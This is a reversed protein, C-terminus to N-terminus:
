DESKEGDDEGEGKVNEEDEAKQSETGESETTENQTTESGPTENNTKESELAELENKKRQKIEHEMTKRESAERHKIERVQVRREMEDREKAERAKKESEEEESKKVGVEKANPASLKESTQQNITLLAKRIGASTTATEPVHEFEYPDYFENKSPFPENLQVGPFDKSYRELRAAFQKLPWARGEISWATEFMRKWRRHNAVVYLGCRARSFLVNLRRFDLFGPNDTVVPDMIVIDYELGQIKDVTEIVINAAQPYRDSMKTMAYRLRKAELRYPTLVAIIASHPADCFGANVLGELINTVAVIYESCFKPLCRKSKQETAGPVNFFVVSHPADYIETNHKVIAQALPRNEVKTVEDSGLRGQYRTYNYINAIEPVARYQTDFFGAPFKQNQLRTQLSLQMQDKLPSKGDLNGSPPQMQFPDGVMIKGIARPYFGLLPWWQYEPVRAAEDVIILECAKYSQTVMDDAVGAVTACVAAAGEIVTKMFSHISAIFSEVDKDRYIEGKSYRDYSSQLFSGKSSLLQKMRMGVSLSINQVREDDVGEYRGCAYTRYHDFTASGTEQSGENQQLSHAPKKAAQALVKRKADEADKLFINTETKISHLRVIYSDGRLTPDLDQLWNNLGLAISDVGRNGASTILVKHHKEDLFFPKVAQIIFHTKGTGPGGHAIVFGAPASRGKALASRQSQNLQLHESDVLTTDALSSYIDVPKMNMKGGSALFGLLSGRNGDLMGQIAQYVYVFESHRVVTDVGGVICPQKMIHKMIDPGMSKSPVHVHPITNWVFAWADKNTLSNPLSPIVPSLQLDPRGEDKGLSRDHESRRPRKQRPKLKALLVGPASSPLPEIFEMHYRVLVSFDGKDTSTHYQLCLFGRDGPSITPKGKEVKERHWLPLTVVAMMSHNKQKLIRVKCKNFDFDQEYETISQVIKAGMTITAVYEGVSSFSNKAPESKRDLVEKWSLNQADSKNYRISEIVVAHRGAEFHNYLDM